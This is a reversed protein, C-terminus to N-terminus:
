DSAARRRSLVILTAGASSAVLAVILPLASWGPRSVAADNLDNLGAWLEYLLWFDGAGMLFWGSSAVEGRLLWVTVLAGGALLAVILFPPLPTLLIIFALTVGALAAAAHLQMRPPDGGRMRALTLWGLLVLGLAVLAVIFAGVPPM